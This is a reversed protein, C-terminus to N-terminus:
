RRAAGLNEQRLTVVRSVVDREMTERTVDYEGLMTDCIHALTRGEGLLEWIRAGVPDLGFYTGKGLELIVVEDGVKRAIVGAPIDFADNMTM